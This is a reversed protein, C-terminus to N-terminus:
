IHITKEHSYTVTGPKAGRPKRVYKRLTYDVPVFKSHKSKSQNVAVKAAFQLVELGVREPQNNSIVVVHASSSGRLHLWWDNPKALKVTLYDNAESNEGYLIRTNQPGILEKIKHGDFAPRAESRKGTPGVLQAHLWRKTKAYDALRTLQAREAVKIEELVSKLDACDAQIRHLQDNSEPLRNKAHKAKEYFRNANEVVNLDSDVPITEWDGEFNQLEISTAGEPIMPQFAMLLDAQSQWTTSGKAREIANQLESIAHKRSRILRGLTKELQGRIQDQNTESELNEFFQELAVSLSTKREERFGLAAVSVPYAGYGRALIPAFDGAIVKPLIQDNVAILSKLFPSQNELNFQGDSLHFTPPRTYRRGSIVRDSGSSKASYKAACIIRKADDVLILNSKSGMLEVILTCSSDERGFDLELIRDGGIQEARTLRSGVLRSRLTSCLTTPTPLNPPRSTIFHTRFFIPHCNLLLMSQGILSAVYLELCITNEDPQVIKQVKSGLFPQLERAIANVCFSDYPIKKLNVM